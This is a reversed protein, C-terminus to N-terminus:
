KITGGMFPDTLTIVMLILSVAALAKFLLKISIGQHVICQPCGFGGASSLSLLYCWWVRDCILTYYFTFRMLSFLTVIFVM